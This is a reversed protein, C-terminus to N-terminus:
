SAGLPSIVEHPKRMLLDSHSESLGFLLGRPLAMCIAQSAAEYGRFESFALDNSVQVTYKDQASVARGGLLAAIMVMLWFPIRTM